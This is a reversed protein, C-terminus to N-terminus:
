GETKGKLRALWVTSAKFMPLRKAPIAVTEGTRPNRGMRAVRHRVAFAGLGRVDIREGRCLAETLTAFVIEVIEAVERQTVQPLRERLALSIAHKTM